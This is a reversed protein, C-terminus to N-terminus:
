VQIASAESRKLLGDVFTDALVRAVLIGLPAAVIFLTATETLLQGIIRWPTAGLAVRTVIELRRAVARALLLSAVNACLVLFVLGVAGFLVLIGDRTSGVLAEHLDSLRVSVSQNSAPYQAALRSAVGALEVQASALSVGPRRRGIVTVYRVARGEPGTAGVYDRRPPPPTWLGSRAAAPPQL